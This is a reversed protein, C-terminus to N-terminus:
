THYSTKSSGMCGSFEFKCYSMRNTYCNELRISETLPPKYLLITLKYFIPFKKMIFCSIYKDKIQLDFKLENRPLEFHYVTVAITHPM